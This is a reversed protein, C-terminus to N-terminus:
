KKSHIINKIRKKVRKSLVTGLMKSIIGRIISYISRKQMKRILMPTRQFGEDHFSQWFIDYEKPKAVSHEISPNGAYAEEYSTQNMNIGADTLMREGKGSHAMLLSVGCDSHLEPHHNKIGWFDALTIDSHSKGCKAPCAYCSPRLDLNRLFIQMHLNKSMPEFLLEQEEEDSKTSQSDSNKDGKRAVAHVSFGFKEWGHRKDRFNIGTIVPMRNEKLTSQFDTNKGASAGEPRTIYRLYERWVLPSPVGHCVVDVTLLQEGYDKRLFLKLGAIQCPTGTFMVMRGEKLFAETRRYTDGIRSQVYKSGQFAKIGDITEAYGHVVEWNEDFRAGFVVGGREIVYKALAFFVGGSSSSLRIKDDTNQAAYVKLPKRPEAQNIVPCVKECLGCEICNEVDVEPYLFGQEDGNM